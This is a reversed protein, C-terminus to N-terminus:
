AESVVPNVLRGLGEVETVITEGARLWRHPTRGLGVGAPTGTSVIDGPKLPAIASLYAILDPIRFILERTNSCQLVEGAITLKIDLAHPDPVEDKTVIAPGLPAFTDFSKGLSWQSTAMQVDRATVDNMITYGFVHEEWAAASINKGGKGIVFAFEAEYDPQQTLKPLIVTSRPGNLASTLKLFITPVKPIEQHTEIAHDRYALGLCFIRPPNQLPALLEVEALPIRHTKGQLFNRLRVLADPGEEIVSGINAVRDSIDVIEEDLLVGPKVKRDRDKYTVLRM